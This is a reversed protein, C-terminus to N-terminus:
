WRSAPLWLGFLMRNQTHAGTHHHPAATSPPPLSLAYPRNDRKKGKEQTKTTRQMTPEPLSPHQKGSLAWDGVEGEAVGGGVSLM